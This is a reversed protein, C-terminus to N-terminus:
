VAAAPAHIFINQHHYLPPVTTTCHHCQHYLVTTYMHMTHYLKNCYLITRYMTHHLACFFTCFLWPAGLTYTATYTASVCCLGSNWGECQGVPEKGQREKRFMGQSQGQLATSRVKSHEVPGEQAAQQLQQHAPASGCARHLGYGNHVRAMGFTLPLQDVLTRM